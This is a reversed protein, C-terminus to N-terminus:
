DPAKLVYFLKLISQLLLLCSGYFVTMYGPFLPFMVISDTRTYRNIWALEWSKWVLISCFIFVAFATAISLIRVLKKPLVNLVLDVRVHGEIHLIYATGLFVAAVMLLESIDLVWDLPSNFLYRRIVAYTNIVMLAALALGAVLASFRTIQNILNEILKLMFKERGPNAARGWRAM